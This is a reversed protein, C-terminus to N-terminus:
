SVNDNGGTNVIVNRLTAGCWIPFHASALNRSMHCEHSSICAGNQSTARPTHEYTTRM